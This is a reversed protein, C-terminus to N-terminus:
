NRAYKKLANEDALLMQQTMADADFELRRQDMLIELGRVRTRQDMVRSRAERREAECKDIEDRVIKISRDISEIWLHTQTLFEISCNRTIELGQRKVSEFDELRKRHSALLADIRALEGILVNLQSSEISHIRRIRDIKKKLESM